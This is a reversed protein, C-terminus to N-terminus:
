ERLSLALLQTAIDGVAEQTHQPETLTLRNSWKEAAMQLIAKQPSSPNAQKLVKMEEKLFLQYENPKGGNRPVPKIQVLKGQCGGCRHKEPNISKSHRKYACSCGDCQWLYKFDIEYSHKTTVKIGRSSFSRSCKQAWHKFEKGHPNNTIGSIMFNALHCFEHALVNLLRDESDIIKEALEISAHHQYTITAGSGNSPTTRLTEMKWNARGATTNLTKSWEIKVGGTSDSLQSIRGDAIQSDLEKLFEVALTAKVAEFSSKGAKVPGLPKHPSRMATKAAKRPSHEENWCDVLSQTWFGDKTPTYPGQPTAGTKRPSPLPKRSVVVTDPAENESSLDNGCLRENVRQETLKLEHAIPTTVANMNEKEATETANATVCMPQLRIKADARCYINADKSSLPSPASPIAVAERGTGSEVEAIQSESEHGAMELSISDELITMCIDQKLRAMRQSFETPHNTLQLSAPLTVDGADIESFSSSSSDSDLLTAGILTSNMPTANAGQRTQRRNGFTNEGLTPEPRNQKKLEVKRPSINRSFDLVKKPSETTWPQFLPNAAILKEGDLRRVRRTSPQATSRPVLERRQMPTKPQLWTKQSEQALEDNREAHHGLRDTLRSM